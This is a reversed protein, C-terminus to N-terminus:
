RFFRLDSRPIAAAVVSVEIGHEHKEKLRWASWEAATAGISTFPDFDALMAVLWPQARASGQRGIVTNRFRLM